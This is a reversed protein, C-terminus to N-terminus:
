EYKKAEEVCTEFQTKIWNTVDDIGLTKCDSKLKEWQANFDADNKAYIMKWSAPKIKEGISKQKSALDDPMIPMMSHAISRKILQNNAKGFEYDTLVGKNNSSWDKILKTDTNYKVFSDWYGYSMTQNTSPNITQDTMPGDAFLNSVDGLTGGGPLEGNNKLIEKGKDTVYRKGSSDVDWIGGQPGNKLIDQGDYSFYWNLFRLVADRDKPNASMLYLRDSAGTVTDPYSTIKLDSAWVPAYGTFSDANTHAPTDYGGVAWSWVTSLVRGDTYKQSLSDWKQSVSDPDLIGMQNAKYFFKLVRYYDSDDDLISQIPGDNDAPVGVLPNVYEWDRGYLESVYTAMACTYSDWEPFLSLGYVKEGGENKPNLDQMKKLVTLYDELTSIKPKGLKEYLDWRIYPCINIKENKGISSQLAYMGNDSGGYAEHCFQLVKTYHDNTYLNPLKDKYLDWNAVLKGKVASDAQKKDEVRFFDPVDGSALWADVSSADTGEYMELKIGLKEELYDTFWTSKSLINASGAGGGVTITAIEGTWKDSLSSAGSSAAQSPTEEQKSCGAATFVLMAALVASSIRKATKLTQKKM